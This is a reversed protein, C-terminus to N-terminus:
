HWLVQVFFMVFVALAVGAAILATRMAAARRQDLNSNNHSDTMQEQSFDPWPHGDKTRANM